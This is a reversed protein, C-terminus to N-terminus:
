PEDGEINDPVSAAPERSPEAGQTPAQRPMGQIEDALRRLRRRFRSFPRHHFVYPEGTNAAVIVGKEYPLVHDVAAGLRQSVEDVSLSGTVSVFRNLVIRQRDPPVGLGELVECLRVGGLLTPVVNELVIYTRDSLDLVAVNVRDLMPFTDVIVCDYVRRALTLVRSMVEDDVESAEVADRPAALLHLGCPHLVALERILTEDLRDRQRVADIISTTPSVDLLSSCVGMQLSADILLVSEPARRALECAVNVAITSKGVGGKNSILSVVRGHRSMVRSVPRLVRRLLEDLEASSVPRHLFDKIGARIAGIMVTSESVDAGFTDHRILAAVTTEPSARGVEDAFAALPKLDPGMEILVLDPERNRAVEVAQRADSVHHLLPRPEDLSAVASELEAPLQPDSGVVLINVTALM